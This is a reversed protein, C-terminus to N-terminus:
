TVTAMRLMYKLERSLLVPLYFSKTKIKLMTQGCFKTRVCSDLSSIEHNWSVQLQSRNQNAMKRFRFREIQGVSILISPAFKIFHKSTRNTRIFTGHAYGLKERDVTKTKQTAACEMSTIMPSVFINVWMSVTQDAPGHM